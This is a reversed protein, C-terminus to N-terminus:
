AAEEAAQRIITEAENVTAVIKGAVSSIAKQTPDADFRRQEVESGTFPLVYYNAVAAGDTLDYIKYAEAGIRRMLAEDDQVDLMLIDLVTSGAKFDVHYEHNTKRGVLPCRARVKGLAILPLINGELLDVLPPSAPIASRPRHAAILRDMLRELSESLNDTGIGSINVFQPESFLFPVGRHNKRMKEFTTKNIPDLDLLRANIMEAASDFSDLSLGPTEKAARRAAARDVDVLFRKNAWIVVGINLLEGRAPDPICRIVSYYGKSM